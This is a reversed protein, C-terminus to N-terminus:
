MNRLQNDIDNLEQQLENRRQELQQRIRQRQANRNPDETQQPPSPQELDNGLAFAFISLPERSQKYEIDGEFIEEKGGYKVIVKYPTRNINSEHQAYYSIFVHYMGQPAQGQPWYINEIPQNSHRANVNMDIELMGGSPVRPQKFCVLDNNPDVCLLDLDNYNNWSLLVQVDGTSPQPECDNLNGEQVKQIAKHIQLLNGVNDRVSKGTSQLACIIQQTTLGENVSKLLAIAGSVIPAAMSTGSMSEYGNKCSSYIDVGPASITSYEGYNSFDAKRIPSITESVASVTVFLEPRQLAEVGALVNDNGAAVVITANNHKQAIRMVERWLREEEKFRNNIIARQEAEPYRDLGQFQQGLSVNIVDAGQYLAYLIGDLVSTTTMIGGQNAVQIPMFTCLPAIGAIGIGNDANGIAIGAVHTGHDEELPFITRDHTWVNYPMVIKDKFEPHNLNFGNDVVAVTIDKSGRTIDWASSAEIANLYWSQEITCAPDNPTYSGEFLSEDFVFVQFESFQSPIKRKLEEREESPFEIQIRKVVDDYYVVKYQEEPYETKFARVLDLISKSDNEMLINLRNGIITPNGPIIEPTGEIPLIENPRDPLVPQLDEYGSGPNTPNPASEYPNGPDYIGGDGHHVRDDDIWVADNDNIISDRNNDSCYQLLLILLLLLLIALLWKWGKKRFWHGFATLTSILWLWFRKYWPQSVGVDSPPLNNELASSQEEIPQETDGEISDILNNDITNNVKQINAMFTQNGDVVFGDPNIDWGVFEYGDNTKVTPIDTPMITYGKPMRLSFNGEIAGHEGVAFRIAYKKIPIKPVDTVVSEIPKKTNELLTMGWALCVVQNNIAFVFNDIYKPNDINQIARKLIKYEDSNHSLKSVVSRYYNLTENFIRKYKDTQEPESLLGIRIPCIEEKWNKTYWTITDTDQNYEPRAFFFRYQEDIHHQLVADVSEWREYLYDSGIKAHDKFDSNNTIGIKKIYQNPM